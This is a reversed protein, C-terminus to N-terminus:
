QTVGACRVKVFPSSSGGAKVGQINRAEIITIGAL